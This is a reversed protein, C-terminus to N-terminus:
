CEVSILFNSHQSSNGTVQQITLARKVDNEDSKNCTVKILMNVKLVNPVQFIALDSTFHSEYITALIKNYSFFCVESNTSVINNIHLTLPSLDPEENCLMTSVSEGNSLGKAVNSTLFINSDKIHFM